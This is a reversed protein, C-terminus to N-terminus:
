LTTLRTFIEELTAHPQAIQKRIEDRSGFARLRGKDLIMILGAFHAAEDMRHTTMIIATGYQKSLDRIFGHLHQTSIYDLSKTPEDLLLLKPEHMLGRILGLTQQMGASYTDFRKDLYHANFFGGLEQIKNKTQKKNLGYLAAFFELNQRGSLRAYFSREASTAIGLTSKIKEDNVESTYGNVIISGQDPLLLKVIIKLLTTKGAGNPGLLSIIEGPKLSFSINELARVPTEKKKNGRFLQKFSPPSFFNKTIANVELIPNM